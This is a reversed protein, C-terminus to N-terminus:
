YFLLLSILNEVFPLVTYQTLFYLSLGLTISIPLAPLAKRMTTVLFLTTCLGTLIAVFSAIATMPGSKSAQAVLISYFVFDGLGLKIHTGLTGIQINGQSDTRQLPPQEVQSDAGAGNEHTTRRLFSKLASVPRRSARPPSDASNEQVPQPPSVPNEATQPPSEAHSDPPNTSPDQQRPQQRPKGTHSKPERGPAVPNTDYVLAPLQDERERAAKVLMNLPGYKSLVAYLDWLVLLGLIIWVAFDPLTRFVYAMLSSMVILYGQNIFRPVRGFVAYLGTVTFNWVCFFLTIWDIKVCRSRCFDFIYLGGVYAFVVFVALILWIKIIGQRNTKYLWVMFFTFIIMLFVFVAIFIIAYKPSFENSEPATSNLVYPKLPELSPRSLSRRCKEADGISNVFWVSLAMCIMVPTLVLSIANSVADCQEDRSM